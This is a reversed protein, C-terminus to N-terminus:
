RKLESQYRELSNQLVRVFEPMRSASVTVRAVCKLPVSSIQELAAQREEPTGLLIPPEAEFFSITFEHETHQVVLNTAYRSILDEPIQWKIPLGRTKEPEREASFTTPHDPQSPEQKENGRHETV